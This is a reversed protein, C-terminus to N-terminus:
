TYTCVYMCIHIPSFRWVMVTRGEKRGESVKKGEKVWRGEGEKVWRGEKVWESVKRGEKRWESVKRGEKRGGEKGGEKRGEKREKRGEPLAANTLRPQLQSLVGASGLIWLVNRKIKYWSYVDWVKIRGKHLRERVCKLVFHETRLSIGTFL